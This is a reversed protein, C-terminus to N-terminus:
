VKFERLSKGDFSQFRADEVEVKLISLMKSRIISRRSNSTIPTFVKSIFDEIFYIKQESNLLKFNIIELEKMEKILLKKSDEPDFYEELLDLLEKPLAGIIEHSSYNIEKKNDVIIIHIIGTVLLTTNILNIAFWIEIMDQTYRYGLICLVLFLTSITWSLAVPLRTRKEITLHFHTYFFILFFQIPIIFLFLFWTILVESNDFRFAVTYAVIYPIFWYLAILFSIESSKKLLILTGYLFFMIASVGWLVMKLYIFGEPLASLPFAVFLDTYISISLFFISIGFIVTNKKGEFFWKKIIAIAVILFLLDNVLVFTSYWDM